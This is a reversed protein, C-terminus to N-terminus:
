LPLSVLRFILMSTKTEMKSNLREFWQLKNTLNLTREVNYLKEVSEVQERSEIYYGYKSESIIKNMCNCKM